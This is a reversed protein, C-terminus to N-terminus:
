LHLQVRGREREGLQQIQNRIGMQASSQSQDTLRGRFLYGKMISFESSSHSKKIADMKVSQSHSAVNESRNSGLWERLGDRM